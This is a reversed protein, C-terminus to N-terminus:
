GPFCHAHLFLSAIVLFPPKIGIIGNAVLFIPCYNQLHAIERMSSADENGCPM